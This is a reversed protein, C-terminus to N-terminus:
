YRFPWLIKLMKLGRKASLIILFLGIIILLGDYSWRTLDTEELHLWIGYEDFALGLGFGHFISIWFKARPGSFILALYGSIALIFFGYAYHHVHIGFWPIYPDPWIYNAIRALIFTILFIATIPFILAVYLEPEKNVVKRNIARSM